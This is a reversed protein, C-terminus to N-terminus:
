VTIEEGKLTLDNNMKYNISMGQENIRNRAKSLQQLNSRWIKQYRDYNVLMKADREKEIM